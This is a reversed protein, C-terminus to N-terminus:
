HCVFSDLYNMFDEFVDQKTGVSNNMTRFAFAQQSTYCYLLGIIGYAKEGTAATMTYYQYLMGQGAKTIEVPEGEEVGAIGELAKLEEFGGVLSSTIHWQMAKINDTELYDVEQNGAGAIVSGLNDNAENELIGTEGVPFGDSYESSLDHDSYTAFGSSAEVTCGVPLILLAVLLLAVGPLMAKRTKVNDEMSNVKAYFILGVVAM